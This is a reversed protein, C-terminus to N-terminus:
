IPMGDATINKLIPLSQRLSNEVENRTFIHPSIVRHNEFGVEWVIKVMRDKIGEDLAEVELFIDLDSYGKAYDRAQSGLVRFDVVAVLTSLRKKLEEAILRDENKM